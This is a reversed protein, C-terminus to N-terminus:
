DNNINEGADVQQELVPDAEPKQSQAQRFAIRRQLREKNSEEKKWDGLGERAAKVQLRQVRRLRAPGIDSIPALPKPTENGESM